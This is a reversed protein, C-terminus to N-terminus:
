DGMIRRLVYKEGAKGANLKRIINDIEEIGGEVLGKTYADSQPLYEIKPVTAFWRGAPNKIAQLVEKGAVNVWAKEGEVRIDIRQWQIPGEETPDDFPSHYMLWLYKRRFRTAVEKGLKEEILKEAVDGKRKFKRGLAALAADMPFRDRDRPAVCLRRTEQDGSITAEHLAKVLARPSDYGAGSSSGACGALFTALFLVAVLTLVRWQKTKKIM